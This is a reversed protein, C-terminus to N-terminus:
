RMLHVRYAAQRIVHRLQRINGPWHYQRLQNIADPSISLHPNGLETAIDRLLHHIFAELDRRERLPPLVIEMENLRFYLDARFRKRRVEQYLDRNTAAVIRVDVPRSTHSGIRTVRKEELVRLLVAQSALPLEGIEDLFLTGQHAAE